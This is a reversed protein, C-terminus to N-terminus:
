QISVTALCAKLMDGQLAYGLVAVSCCLTLWSGCCTLRSPSIPPTTLWYWLGGSSGGPRGTAKQIVGYHETTEESVRKSETAQLEQFVKEMTWNAELHKRPPPAFDGICQQCVEREMLSDCVAMQEM